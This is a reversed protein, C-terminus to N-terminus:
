FFSKTKCIEYIEKVAMEVNTSSVYGLTCDENRICNMTGYYLAHNLHVTNIIVINRDKLLSSNIRSVNAEIFTWSSLKEKMKNQWNPHGGIIIGKLNNLTPLDIDKETDDIRIDNSEKFMYERLAIVEKSDNQMKEIEAKLRQNEKRLRENEEILSQDAKKEQQVLFSNKEKEIRLLSKCDELERKITGLEIYMTEKNNAFYINKAKKYAKCMGLLFLTHHIYNEFPEEFQYYKKACIYSLIMKKTDDADFTLESFISLSLNELDFLFEYGHYKAEKAILIENFITKPIKKLYSVIETKYRKGAEELTLRREGQYFRWQTFLSTHIFEMNVIHKHGMTFFVAAVSSSNIEDDNMLDLRNKYFDSIFKKMDIEDDESFNKFYLYVKRYGKRFLKRIEEDLEKDEEGCKQSYELIGICKKFYEEVILSCEKAMVCDYFESSKGCTYYEEKRQKYLNDIDKYIFSKSSLALAYFPMLNLEYEYEM